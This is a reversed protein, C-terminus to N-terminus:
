ISPMNKIREWIEPIRKVWILERKKVIAEETPSGWYTKGAELDGPVGSQAMIVANDGISLTKSIGVQGWITVGNGITVFGAIAVQAAFLCNEGTVVEHGFHVLNDLKSGRGIKTEASVGRDITCNAGIEVEDEIVVTGCSEMKKYWGKRDKKTNFYFADSGIVSGSHIIVDNGIKCNDYITVNPHIISRSGISVNNGVFVNPMIVATEDIAATDSIKKTAPIFPSFHKVIKIYAEFPDDTILLTKGDPVATKKNI